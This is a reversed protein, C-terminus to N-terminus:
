VAKAAKFNVRVEHLIACHSLVWEFLESDEKKDLMMRAKLEMMEQARMDLWEGFTDFSNVGAHTIFGDAPQGQMLESVTLMGAAKLEDDIAPAGTRERGKLLVSNGSESVDTKEEPQTTEFKIQAEV